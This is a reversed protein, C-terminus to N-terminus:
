QLRVRVCEGALIANNEAQERSLQGSMVMSRAQSRVSDRLNQMTPNTAVVAAYIAQGTANLKAACADGGAPDAQAATAFGIVGMSLVMMKRVM